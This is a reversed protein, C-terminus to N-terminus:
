GNQKDIIKMSDKNKQAESIWADEALQEPHIHPCVQVM